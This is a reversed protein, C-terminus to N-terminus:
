GLWQSDHHSRSELSGAKKKTGLSQCVNEKRAHLKQPCIDPLLGMKAHSPSIEGEVEGEEEEWM